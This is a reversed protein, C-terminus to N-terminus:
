PALMVVRALGLSLTYELHLNFGKQYLEFKIEEDSATEILAKNRASSSDGEILHSLESGYYVLLCM